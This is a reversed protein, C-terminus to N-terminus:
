PCNMPVAMPEVPGDRKVIEPLDKLCYQRGSPLTIRTLGEALHEIGQRAQTTAREIPSPTRILSASGSRMSDGVTRNVDSRIEAKAREVMEAASLAPSAPTISQTTAATKATAPALKATDTPMGRRVDVQKRALRGLKPSPAALNEEPIAQQVPKRLSVKLPM